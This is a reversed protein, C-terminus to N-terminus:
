CHYPPGYLENRNEWVDYLRVINPHELLKMIVIEREVGFPILHGTALAGAQARKSSEVLNALSTACAEEAVKKPIIKVAADQGTLSHRVKRVKGVGGKGIDSGLQWPGIHTKKKRGKSSANTSTTSVQSNRKSDPLEGTSLASLRKNNPSSTVNQVTHGGNPM